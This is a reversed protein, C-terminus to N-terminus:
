RHEGEVSSEWSPARNLGDLLMLVLDWAWVLEEAQRWPEGHSDRRWGCSQTSAQNTRLAGRLGTGVGVVTRPWVHSVRPHGM